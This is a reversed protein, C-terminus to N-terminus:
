YAPPPLPAAFGVWPCGPATTTGLNKKLVFCGGSSRNLGRPESRELCWRTPRQCLVTNDIAVRLNCGHPSSDPRSTGGVGELMAHPGTICESLDCTIKCCRCFRPYNGHGDESSPRIRGSVVSTLTSPWSDCGATSMLDVAPPMLPRYPLWLTNSLLGHAIGRKQPAWLGFNSAASAARFFM